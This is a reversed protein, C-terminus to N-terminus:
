DQKDDEPKVAAHDTSPHHEDDFSDVYDERTEVFSNEEVTVEPLDAEITEETNLPITDEQEPFFEMRKYRQLSESILTPPPPLLTSVISTGSQLDEIREDETVNPPPLDVQEDQETAEATGDERRGRRKRYSRRRDRKKDIKSADKETPKAEEVKPQQQPQEKQRPTTERGGAIKITRDTAVNKLVMRAERVELVEYDSTPVIFSKPRELSRFFFSSGFSVVELAEVFYEEQGPGKSSRVVLKCGERPTIVTEIIPERTFDM